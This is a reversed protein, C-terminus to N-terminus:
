RKDGSEEEEEDLLSKVGLDRKFVNELLLAIAPPIETKNDNYVQQIYISQNQAPLLGASEMVRISARYGHECRRSDDPATLYDDIVKTVNNVAVPLTNEVLRIQLEELYERVDERRLKRAVTTQDLHVIKGIERGAYGAASLRAIEAEKENLM